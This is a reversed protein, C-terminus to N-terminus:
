RSTFRHWWQNIKSSLGLKLEKLQLSANRVVSESKDQSILREYQGVLEPAIIGRTAQIAQIQVYLDEDDFAQILHPLYNEKNELKSLNHVAGKRISTDSHNLFPILSNGFDIKSNSLVYCLFCFTEAQNLGTLNKIIIDTWDGSHNKAYWHIGQAAMLKDEDLTSDLHQAIYPKAKEYAFKTLMWLAYHRVKKEPHRMQKEIFDITEPYVQPLKSLGWIAEAQDDADSSSQFFRILDLDNGGMKFGFWLMDYSNLIEDLWREYWDLFHAEFSFQPKELDRDINVIRGRYPGNVVLCTEFACGQTGISMLGHFWPDDEENDEQSKVLAKWEDETMKPHLQCPKSLNTSNTLITKNLENIGYYPGAGSAGVQTIFARFAEPLTINHKAEFVRVDMESQPEDLAYQHREAGFVKVKPDKARVLVLKENIRRLPEDFNM